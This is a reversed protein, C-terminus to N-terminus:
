QREGGRAVVVSGGDGTVLFRGDALPAVGHLGRRSEQPLPTFSDGDDTSSIVTGGQGVFLLAGDAGAYAGFLSGRAMSDLEEWNEGGDTSRYVTGLLGYAFVSGSAPNIVVGFFSGDYGTEVLEWTNGGNTSRFVYGWESALFLKNDPGGAVGNLHLEDENELQHAWDDWHRGGNQTRLLTGYGGSAWGQEANKFWIDMLPPAYVPEDLAELANDLAFEAEELEFMLDERDEETSSALAQRLQDVTERARGAREENIRAQDALGDRQLEWNTGADRTFLVHGDHGVAWGQSDDLFFVRTLMVSTPVQAQTWNEGDDDSYVIHGREGVAVLREGAAAIDLLLSTSAKPMIMAYDTGSAGAPLCLLCLTCLALLAAAPRKGSEVQM